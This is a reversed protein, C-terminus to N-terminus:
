VRMLTCVERLKSNSSFSSCKLKYALLTELLSYHCMWIESLSDLRTFLFYLRARFFPHRVSQCKQCYFQHLLVFEAQCKVGLCVCKYFKTYELSASHTFNVCWCVVKAVGMILGSLLGNQQGKGRSFVRWKQAGKLTCIASVLIAKNCSM